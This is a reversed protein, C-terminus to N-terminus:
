FKHLARKINELIKMAVELDNSVGRHRLDVRLAMIAQNFNPDNEPQGNEKPAGEKDGNETKKAKEAMVLYQTLSILTPDNAWNKNIEEVAKRAINRNIRSRPSLRPRTSERMARRDLRKRKLNELKKRLFQSFRNRWSAM